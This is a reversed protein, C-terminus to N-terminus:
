NADEFAGLRLSTLVHEVMVELQVCCVTRPDNLLKLTNDGTNTLTATVKLEEIGKAADAGSLKLSLSPSASANAGLALLFIFAKTSFM